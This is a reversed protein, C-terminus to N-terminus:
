NLPQAIPVETVIRGSESRVVVVANVYTGALEQTTQQAARHAVLDDPLEEGERDEARHTPSEISFFYRPM